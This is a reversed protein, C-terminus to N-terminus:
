FTICSVNLMKKQTLKKSYEMDVFHIEQYNLHFSCHIFNKKILYKQLHRFSEGLNTQIQTNHLLALFEVDLPRKTISDFITKVAEDTRGSWLVLRNLDDSPIANNTKTKDNGKLLVHANSGGLGFSNLAVYNSKLDQIETAVKIRNEKFAAIDSRVSNLNINPFIKGSELMLIVKALSSFGAAAEAHGMNSKVSGIVLPEKRNKCLVSDIASVEVSDGFVTGTAHAEVYGISNVDINSKKYIEEMLKAQMIKSPFTSGQEKHGDNNVSTNLISAYIRKANKRRQLLILGVAESRVFGNATEDFPRSEGEPSLVAGSHKEIFFKKHFNYFCFNGLKSL